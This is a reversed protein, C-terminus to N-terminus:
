LEPFPTGLLSQYILLGVLPYHPTML